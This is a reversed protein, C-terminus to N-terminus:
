LAEKELHFFCLDFNFGRQIQIGHDTRCGSGKVARYARGKRQKSVALFNHIKGTESVYSPIPSVGLSAQIFSLDLHDKVQGPNAMKLFSILLINLQRPSAEAGGKLHRLYWHHLALYTCLSFLCRM